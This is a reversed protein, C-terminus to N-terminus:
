QCVRSGGAPTSPIIWLALRLARAKPEKRGNGASGRERQDTGLQLEIQGNGNGTVVGLSMSAGRVAM